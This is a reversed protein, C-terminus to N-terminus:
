NKLTRSGAGAGQEVSAETLVKLRGGAMILVQVVKAVACLESSLALSHGTGQAKLLLVQAVSAEILKAGQGWSGAMLLVQVVTKELDLLFESKSIKKKERYTYDTM